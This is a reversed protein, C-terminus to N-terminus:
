KTDIKRGTMDFLGDATRIFIRGNYFVKYPRSAEGMAPQHLSTRLVIHLNLVQKCGQPTTQELQYDGEEYYTNKGYSIPLYDAELTDYLQEPLAVEINYIILHVSDAKSKNAPEQVTFQRAVGGACVLSDIYTTDAHWLQILTFQYPQWCDDSPTYTFGSTGFSKIKRGGPYGQYTYPLESYYAYATDVLLPQEVFTFSFQTVHCSDLGASWLVRRFSCSESVVTDAVLVRPGKCLVSDVQVTDYVVEKEQVQLYVIRDCGQAYDFRLTDAGFADIQVGQYMVPLSTRLVRITDAEYLTPVVTLRCTTYLVTYENLWFTDVFLTSEIYASDRFTFSHGECITTDITAFQEVIPIALSDVTLLVKRDCQGSQTLYLLTDGFHSITVGSYNYPLRLKTLRITDNELEPAAYHVHYYQHFITKKDRREQYYLSDGEVAQCGPLTFIAGLCLTTDIDVRQEYWLQLTTLQVKETCNKYTPDTITFTQTGFASVRLNRNGRYNFPLSDQHCLVTDYQLEPATFHLTYFTITEKRGQWTSVQFSADETYNVGKVTICRGQCLTSDVYVTDSRLIEEVHLRIDRDCENARRYYVSFDGFATIQKTRLYNIPLEDAYAKLTDNEVEPAAFHLRHCTEMLQYRYTASDQAFYVTDVFTTDAGYTMGNIRLTKGLCEVTDTTDRLVQARRLYWAEGLRANTHFHVFLSDNRHQRLLDSPLELVHLSDRLVGRLLEQGNCSGSTIRVIASDGRPCIWRIVQTENAATAYSHRPAMVYVNDPDSIVYPNNAYFPLPNDCTSHPGKDYPTVILRGYQSLSMSDMTVRVYMPMSGLSGISSAGFRGMLTQLDAHFSRNAGVHQSITPSTQVCSVFGDVTVGTNSDSFWYTSFGRSVDNLTATYWNTFMITTDMGYYFPMCDMYCDCYYDPFTQQPNSKRLTEM